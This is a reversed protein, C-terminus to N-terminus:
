PKAGADLRRNAWDTGAKQVVEESLGAARCLQMYAKTDLHGITGSNLMEWAKAIQLGAFLLNERFAGSGFESM